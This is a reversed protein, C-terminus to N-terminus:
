QPGYRARAPRDAGRMLVLFAKPANDIGDVGTEQYPHIFPRTECESDRLTDVSVSSSGARRRPRAYRLRPSCGAGPSSVAATSRFSM